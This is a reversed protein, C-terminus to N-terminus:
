HYVFLQEWLYKIQLRINKLKESENLLLVRNEEELQDIKIKQKEIKIKQKEIISNCGAIYDRLRQMEDDQFM